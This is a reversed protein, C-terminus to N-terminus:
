KAREFETIPDLLIRDARGTGILGVTELQRVGTITDDRALDIFTAANVKQMYRRISAAEITTGISALDLAIAEADTFRDLFALRTVKREVPAPPEPTAPPETFGSPDWGWGTSIINGLPHNNLDEIHQYTETMNSIFEEDALIVDKVKNNEILAYRM